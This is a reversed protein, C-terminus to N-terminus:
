GSQRQCMYICESSSTMM